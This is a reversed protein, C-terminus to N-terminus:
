FYLNWLKLFYQQFIFAAAAGVILFPGFPIKSKMTKAGAIILIVGLFAGTLFAIYLAVIILPFGLFLGLIFALKVDGFGMGRGKTFYWLAYFFGGSCIASLGHSILQSTEFNSYLLVCIGIVSLVLMSDPIIQYKVDAVTIVLFASFLILIGIFAVIDYSYSRFILFYGLGTIIEMVPYQMSLGSHCRRFKGGQSIYSVVPILEFWRLTKKCHDCHSRGWLVNQGKPLRDILVNFFSGLIIGTLLFYYDM